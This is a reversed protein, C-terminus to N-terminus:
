KQDLGLPIQDHKERLMIGCAISTFAKGVSAMTPIAERHGRGYYREYALYGHRVVLLGGHPSSRSAYEFAQDLRAVDLGTLALTQASDKPTRWGGAPDPPPSYDDPAPPTHPPPFYDDSALAPTTLLLTSLLILALPKM